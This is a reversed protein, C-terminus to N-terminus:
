VLVCHVILSCNAGSCWTGSFPARKEAFRTTLSRRNSPQSPHTLMGRARLRECRSHLRYDRRIYQVIRGQFPRGTGSVYGRANLITAVGGDPDQDLLQDILAVIEASTERLQWANLARALTLTTTHSFEASTNRPRATISSSCAASGSV